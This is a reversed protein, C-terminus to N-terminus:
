EFQITKNNAGTGYDIRNSIHDIRIPSNQGPRALGVAPQHLIIRM